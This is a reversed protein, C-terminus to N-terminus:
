CHAHQGWAEVKCEHQSTLSCIACIEHSCCKLFLNCNQIRPNKKTNSILLHGALPEQSTHRSNSCKTRAGLVSCSASVSSIFLCFICLVLVEVKIVAPLYFSQNPWTENWSAITLPTRPSVSSQFLFLFLTDTFYCFFLVAPGFIGLQPTIRVGFMSQQHWNFTALFFAKLPLSLLM